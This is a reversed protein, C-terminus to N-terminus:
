WRGIGFFVRGSVFLAANWFRADISVEGGCVEAIM